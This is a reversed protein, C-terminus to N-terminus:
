FKSKGPSKGRGRRRGGPSKSVSRVDRGPSSLLLREVGDHRRGSSTTWATTTTTHMPTRRSVVVVSVAIIFALVWVSSADIEEMTTRRSANFELVVHVNARGGHSSPHKLVVSTASDNTSWIRQDLTSSLRVSYEGGYALGEFAFYRSPTVRQSLMVVNPRAARVLEIALGAAWREPTRVSGSLSARRPWPFAVFDVGRVDAKGIVVCTSAPLAREFVSSNTTDM